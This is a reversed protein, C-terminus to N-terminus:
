NPMEHMLLRTQALLRLQNTAKHVLIRSQASPRGLQNFAEYKLIKLLMSTVIEQLIIVIKQMHARLSNTNLNCVPSLKKRLDNISIIWVATSALRQRLMSSFM